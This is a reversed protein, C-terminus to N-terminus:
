SETSEKHAASLLEEATQKKPARKPKPKPEAIPTISLKYYGARVSAKMEVPNVWTNRIMHQGTSGAVGALATKYGKELAKAKDMLAKREEFMEVAAFVAPDELLGEVDTDNGRCVTAYECWNWCFERPM